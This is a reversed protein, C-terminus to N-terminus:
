LGPKFVFEAYLVSKSHSKSRFPSGEAPCNCLDVGEAVFLGPSRCCVCQHTLGPPDSGSGRRHPM